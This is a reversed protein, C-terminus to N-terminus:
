PIVPLNTVYLAQYEHLASPTTGAATGFVFVSTSLLTARSSLSTDAPLLVNSWSDKSVAFQIATQSAPDFVLLMNAIGVAAPTGIAQPLPVGASWPSGGPGAFPDYRESVRLPGGADEGGVVYIQNEAVAAAAARRPTPMPNLTQWKNDDPDYAFVEARYEKGDWGGFLYIRGELSALAYRSRAQPLEKLQEWRESRPDYAEVITTPIGNATEGGPVVIRGGLTAAQVQSVATPKNSLPVWLNNLPDFREVADSPGNAGTGGIAYLRGNYSAVAFDDRPQTLPARLKWREPQPQLTAPTTAATQPRALAQFAALGAIAIISLLALALAWPRLRPVAAVPAAPSSPPVPLAVPPPEALPPLEAVAVLDASPEASPEAATSPAPEVSISDARGIDVLGQRMAYITAETRSSAGIKGFINRLHVKVTNISIDLSSAIQQNSAGTAVLRLIECERESLGATETM